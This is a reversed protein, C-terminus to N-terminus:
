APSYDGSKGKKAYGNCCDLFLIGLRCPIRRIMDQIEASRFYQNHLGIQPWASYNCDPAGHGTFYFLVIDDSSVQLGEIWRLAESSRCNKRDLIQIKLNMNAASAITQLSKKLRYADSTSPIELRPDWNNAIILAHFCSAFCSSQFIWLLCLFISFFLSKM